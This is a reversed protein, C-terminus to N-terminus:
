HGGLPIGGGGSVAVFTSKSPSWQVIVASSLGIGRQSGDRFDYLGNVGAFGHLAEIYAHIQAATAGTGLHKLADIVILAPDWSFTHTSEPEVKDAKLARYFTDQADRLPGPRVVDHSGFRGGVFYVQPPLFSAYQLIQARILNAPSSMVPLNLGLDSVGHLVTGFPTGTTWAILAQANAAKIRSMQAAVSVDGIGFREDAVLTIGKNEPLQLNELVVNHGDQGSADTSSILALRKWGRERFYRIAARSLDNTSIFASFTTSGAAPKMSPSFFYQLVSNKVLPAVAADSGTLTPGLIIPVNKALLATELPVANAPSSQDDAIVFHIPTGRIGGSANVTAELAHLSQAEQQGIFGALGTMALIVNIEYPEPAASAPMVALALSTLVAAAAFRKM